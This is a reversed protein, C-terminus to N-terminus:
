KATETNKNKITKQTHSRTLIVMVIFFLFFVSVLIIAKTTLFDQFSQKAFFQTGAYGGYFLVTVLIIISFLDIFVFSLVSMRLYGALLYIASRVYPTFRALFVSVNLGYKKIIREANMSHNENIIRAIFRKLRNRGSSAILYLSLDGLFLGTVCALVSPLVNVTGQTAFYGLGIIVANKSFPFGYTCFVLLLVIGIYGFSEMMPLTQLVESHAEIM